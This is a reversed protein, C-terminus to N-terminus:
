GCPFGVSKHIVEFCVFQAANAEPQKCVCPYCLLDSILNHIEFLSYANVYFNIESNVKHNQLYEYFMFWKIKTWFSNFTAQEQSYEVRTRM